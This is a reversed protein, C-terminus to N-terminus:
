LGQVEKHPLASVELGRSPAPRSRQRTQDAGLPPSPLAEVRGSPGGYSFLHIAGSQPGPAWTPLCLCHSITLSSLCLSFEALSWHRPLSSLHPPRLSARPLRFLRGPLVRHVALSAPIPGSGSREAAESPRRPFVRRQLGLKLDGTLGEAATHGAPPSEAERLRQKRIRSLLSLQGCAPATALARHARKHM